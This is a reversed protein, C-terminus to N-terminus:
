KNQSARICFHESFIQVLSKVDGVSKISTIDPDVRVVIILCNWHFRKDTDSILVNDFVYTTVMSVIRTQTKRM